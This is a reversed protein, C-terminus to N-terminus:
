RVRSDIYKVPVGLLRQFSIRAFAYQNGPNQSNTSYIGVGFCLKKEYDTLHPKIAIVGNYTLSAVGDGAIGNKLFRVDSIAQGSAINSINDPAYGTFFVLNTNSLTAGAEVNFSYLTAMSLDDTDPPDCYLGISSMKNSALDVNGGAYVTGSNSGHVSGISRVRPQSNLSYSSTAWPLIVDNKDLIEFDRELRVPYSM